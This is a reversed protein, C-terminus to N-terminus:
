LFDPFRVLSSNPRMEKEFTNGKIRHALHNHLKDNYTYIIDGKIMQSSINQVFFHFLVKSSRQNFSVDLSSKQASNFISFNNLIERNQQSKGAINPGNSGRKQQVFDSQKITKSKIIKEQILSLVKM